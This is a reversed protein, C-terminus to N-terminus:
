SFKRKKREYRHASALYICSRPLDPHGAQSLIRYGEEESPWLCSKTPDYVHYFTRNKNKVTAGTAM